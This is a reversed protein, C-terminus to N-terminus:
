QASHMRMSIGFGWTHLVKKVARHAKTAALCSETITKIYGMFDEDPYCWVLRPNHLSAQGRLHQTFHFKPVENWLKQEPPALANAHLWRYHHLFDDISTQFNAVGAPPLMQERSDMADYALALAKLMSAIHGDEESMPDRVDDFMSALIPVLHRSAAAKVRSSLCPHAQHPRSPDTFMSLSLGGLRSSTDRDSYQREIKTWLRDLRQQSTLAAGLYRGMYCLYFLTNGLCHHNVGLDLIHMADAMVCMGSVGPLSLLPHCNDAGGNHSCWEAASQYTTDRWRAEESIDNWPVSDTGYRDQLAKDEEEIDNAQCWPCMLHASSHPLSLSNSLWDMDGKVVWITGFLDLGPALLHGGCHAFPSQVDWPEGNVDLSPYRGSWLATLAWAIAAIYVDKTDKGITRNLLGSILLKSDLTPLHQGLFGGWSLTDMSMQACPVGDGHLVLPIARRFCSRADTYDPRKQFELRLHAKRGDAEPIANWFGELMDGIDGQQGGLFRDRFSCPHKKFLYAFWEFPANMSHEGGSSIDVIPGRKFRKYVMPVNFELPKPVDPRRGEALTMLDRNINSAHNGSCGLRALKHTLPPSQAHDQTAAMAIRQVRTASMEGFAWLEMLCQGLKSENEDREIARRAAARQRHGRGQM